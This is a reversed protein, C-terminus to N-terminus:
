HGEVPAPRRSPAVFQVVRVVVGVSMLALAFALSWLYQQMM